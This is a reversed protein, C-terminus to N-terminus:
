TVPRDGSRGSTALIWTIQFASEDSVREPPYTELQDFLDKRLDFMGKSLICESTAVLSVRIMSRSRDRRGSSGGIIWQVGDVDEM